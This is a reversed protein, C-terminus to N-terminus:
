KASPPPQVVCITSILGAFVAILPVIRNTPESPVASLEEGNVIGERLEDKGAHRRGWPDPGRSSEFVADDTFLALAADIDQRNFAAVLRRLVEVRAENSSTTM